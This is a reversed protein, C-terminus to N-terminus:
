PTEDVQYRLVATHLLADAGLADASCGADGADVDRYIRFLQLLGPTFDTSTIPILTLNLDTTTGDVVTSVCDTDTAAPTMDGSDQVRATEVCWCASSTIATSTWYIELTTTGSNDYTVPMVTRTSINDDAADAFTMTPTEFTGSVTFTSPTAGATTNAAWLEAGLNVEVTRVLSVGATSTNIIGVFSTAIVPGDFDYGGAAGTFDLTNDTTEYLISVDGSGGEIIIGANDAPETGGVNDSDVTFTLGTTSTPPKNLNSGAGMDAAASFSFLLTLLGVLFKNMHEGLPSLKLGSTDWTQFHLESSM